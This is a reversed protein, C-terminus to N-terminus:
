LHFAKALHIPTLITQAVIGSRLTFGLPTITDV